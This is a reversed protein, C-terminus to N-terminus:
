WTWTVRSSSVLPEPLPWAAAMSSTSSPAHAVATGEAASPVTAVVPRQALAVCTPAASTTPSPSGTTTPSAMAGRPACTTDRGTLPVRMVLDPDCPRLTTIGASRDGPLQVTWQGASAENVLPPSPRVLHWKGAMFTRYGANRLATAVTVEDAPLGAEQGSQPSAGCAENWCARAPLRGTMLSTRSPGCVAAGAYFSLLKKGGYALADIHPTRSTPHGFSGLDGFGLDDGNFVIFSPRAAAATAVCLLSLQVASHTGRRM